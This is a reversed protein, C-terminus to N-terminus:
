FEHNGPSHCNYQTACKGCTRCHGTGAIARWPGDFDDDKLLHEKQFCFSYFMNSGSTCSFALRLLEQQLTVGPQEEKEQEGLATWKAHWAAIVGTDQYPVPYTQEYALEFLDRTTLWAPVIAESHALHHIACPHLTVEGPGFVAETDLHSMPDGCLSPNRCVSM